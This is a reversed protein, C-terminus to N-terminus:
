PRGAVVTDAVDEGSPLLRRGRDRVGQESRKRVSDLFASVVAKRAYAHEGGTRRMRPWAVYVRILGEQVHDSALDWDGCLLYAARRLRPRAAQAFEVFAQEDAPRM